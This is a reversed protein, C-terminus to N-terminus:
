AWFGFAAVLVTSYAFAAWAGAGVEGWGTGWLGPLAAPVTALVAFLMTLSAVVLPPYKRLLPLSLVAYSGWCVTAVVVLLDGLLSSEGGEGGFGGGVVVGVGLIAVVVGVIGARTPRELGILSGLIMGWIPVAAYILATESATTMSVGLTFAVNNMGVGVVGVGAMRVLDRKEPLGEPSLIFVLGLLLLGALTFRLAVFPLPPIGGVAYKVAVFNTGLFFVAMLLSAETVLAVRDKFGTM